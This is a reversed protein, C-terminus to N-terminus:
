HRHRKGGVLKFRDEPSARQRLSSCLDTTRNTEMVLEPSFVYKKGSHLKKVPCYQLQFVFAGDASHNRGTLYIVNGSLARESECSYIHIRKLEDFDIYILSTIRSPIL